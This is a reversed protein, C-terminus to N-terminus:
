LLFLFFIYVGTFGLKVIYFHPALPYENCPSTKTINLPVAFVSLASVHAARTHWMKSNTVSSERGLQSIYLLFRDLVLENDLCGGAKKFVHMYIDNNLDWSIEFEMFQQKAYLLLDIRDDKHFAQIGDDSVEHELLAGFRYIIM